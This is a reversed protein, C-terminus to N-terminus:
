ATTRMAKDLVARLSDLLEHREPESFRDPHRLLRMMGINVLIQESTIARGQRGLDLLSCFTHAATGMDPVAAHDAMGAVERVTNYLADIQDPGRQDALKFILALAEDIRQICEDMAMELAMDADAVAEDVLKGAGEAVAKGLRNEPTFFHVTSM